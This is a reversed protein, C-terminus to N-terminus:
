KIMYEDSVHMMNLFVTPKNDGHFDSGGTIIKNHKKAYEVLYVSKEESATYHFCEIGDIYDKVDNLMKPIDKIPKYNFPHALVAIGGDKHIAECIDEIPVYDRKVYCSCGAGILTQFAEEISQIYGHRMLARAIHVRNITGKEKENLENITIKYGLKNLNEVMAMTAVNKRAESEDIVYQVKKYDSPNPFYGLIHLEEGLYGASLETGIVTKNPALQHAIISSELFNHDTIAIQTLDKALELIEEITKTGDSYTSHIHLDIM